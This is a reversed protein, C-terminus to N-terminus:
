IELEVVKMEEEKFMDKKIKLNALKEQPKIGLEKYFASVEALGEIKIGPVNYHMAIVMAPEISKVVNVAEKSGITYKGGVPLILIDVEGFKDLQLKSLPHGLDGLHGIRVNESELVYVTNLGRLKGEQDDHYTQIGAVGVGRFTYEGPSNILFHTGQLASVNNHDHHDHTVLVLDAKGHPPKIKADKGFTNEDFPDIFITVKDKDVEPKTVIKFCSHGCYDIQM